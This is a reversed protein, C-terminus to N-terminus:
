TKVRESRANDMSQKIAKRKDIKAWSESSIWPKVKHSKQGLVKEAAGNFGDKVHKWKKQNSCNIKM